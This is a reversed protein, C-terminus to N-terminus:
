LEKRMVIANEGDPYYEKRIGVPLFGTKEYLRKAKENHERVELFMENAGYGKTSKLTEQLLRYGLGQQRYNPHTAINLIEATEFLSSFFCYAIPEEDEFFALSHSYPSSFLALFTEETWPDSFCQKEITAIKSLDEKRCARLIM